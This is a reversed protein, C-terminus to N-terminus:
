NFVVVVVNKEAFTVGSFYKIRKYDIFKFCKQLSINQLDMLMSNKCFGFCPIRTLLLM